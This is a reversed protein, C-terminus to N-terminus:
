IGRQGARSRNSGKTGQLHGETSSTTAPCTGAQTTTAPLQLEHHQATARHTNHHTFTLLPFSLFWHIIFAAVTQQCLWPVGWFGGDGVKRTFYTFLLTANNMLCLNPSIQIIPNSNGSLHNIATLMHAWCLERMGLILLHLPSTPSNCFFCRPSFCCCCGDLVIVQAKGAGWSALSGCWPKLLSHWPWLGLGDEGKM